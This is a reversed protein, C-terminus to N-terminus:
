LHKLMEKAFRQGLEIQSKANFHTGKDSTELGASEVLWTNPILNVVVKQDALVNDRKGDDFVQGILVPLQPLSLDARVRGIFETLNTQYNGAPEGADSEGQHWLLGRIEFTDGNTEVTRQSTRVFEIFREYLMNKQKPNWDKKLNTGGEACKVLLLHEKPLAAAMAYGFGLEPGFMGSPLAGPDKGVKGTFGPQLIEFGKSLVLPRQLGGTSLNIMVSPLPRAYRDLDGTLDAARARGDMNSQGALLFVEYKVGNAQALNALLLLIFQLLTRKFKM